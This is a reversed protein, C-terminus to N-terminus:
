HKANILKVLTKAGPFSQFNITVGNPYELRMIYKAQQGPGIQIFGKTVEPLDVLNYKKKWYYYRHIPLGKVTMFDRITKGSAQLEINFQEFEQKTM